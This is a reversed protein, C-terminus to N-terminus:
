SGRRYHRTLGPTLDPRYSQERIHALDTTFTSLVHAPEVAAGEAAVARLGLSLSGVSAEVIEFDIGSAPGGALQSALAGLARQLKETLEKLQVLKVAGEGIRLTVDLSTSM